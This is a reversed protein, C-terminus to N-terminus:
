KAPVFKDLEIMFKNNERYFKAIKISRIRMETGDTNVIETARRSMPMDKLKIIIQEKKWIGKAKIGLKSLDNM